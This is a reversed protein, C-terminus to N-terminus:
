WQRCWMNERHLLEIEASTFDTQGCGLVTGLEPAPTTKVLDVLSEIGVARADNAGLRHAVIIFESIISSHELCFNTKWKNINDIQAGTLDKRASAPKYQVKYITDCFKLVARVAEETYDGCNLPVKEGKVKEVVNKCLKLGGRSVEFEPGPSELTGLCVLVSM